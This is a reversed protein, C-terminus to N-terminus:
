YLEYANLYSSLDVTLWSRALDVYWISAQLWMLEECVASMLTFMCNARFM